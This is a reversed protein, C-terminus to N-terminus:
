DSTVVWCFIDPHGIEWSLDFCVVTSSSGGQDSANLYPTCVAWVCERHSHVSSRWKKWDNLDATTFGM